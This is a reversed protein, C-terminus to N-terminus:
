IITEIASGYKLLKDSTMSRAAKIYKKSQLVSDIRSYANAFGVLDNDCELATKGTDWCIGRTTDQLAEFIGPFYEM